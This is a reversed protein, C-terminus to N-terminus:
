SEIVKLNHEARPSASETECYRVFAQMVTENPLMDISSGIMGGKWSGKRRGVEKDFSIQLTRRQMPKYVYKLWAFSKCGRNWKREEIHLKVGVVEGDYDKVKTQYPRLAELIRHREDWGVVSRGKIHREVFHLTGDGHFFKSYEITWEGWPLFWGKRRETKSDDTQAGYYLQFYNDTLSFGIRRNTCDWYWNRGLRAITAADWTKPYVKVRHPQVWFPLQVVIIWGFISIWLHNHHIDGDEEYESTNFYFALTSTGSPAVIFPGWRKEDEALRM